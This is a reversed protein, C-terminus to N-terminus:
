AAWAEGLLRVSRRRVQPDWAYTTVILEDAGLEAQIQELRAVVQEPTGVARYRLAQDVMAREAPSGVQDPACPPQLPTREGRRIGLMMRQNTTWLHEAEEQTPAVLASVGAMAHPAHLAATPLQTGFQERYTALIDTAGEPQFHTAISFPLGLQGAISAGAPSSGLVWMPVHTGAAIPVQVPASHGVGEDFWGALDLIARAFQQPEASSRALLQATMPDTGPARGLGLEVRGPYQQALTGFAEAVALPAHNPLMVGGSGVTIRQTRALVAGIILATANSAFAVTNHHEAYWIRRYGSEDAVQALLLADELADAVSRGQSVPVLDLISLPTRAPM